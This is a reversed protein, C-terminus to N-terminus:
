AKQQCFSQKQMRGNRVPSAAKGSPAFLPAKRPTRKASLTRAIIIISKKTSYKDQAVMYFLSKGKGKYM